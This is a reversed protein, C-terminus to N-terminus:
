SLVAWGVLFRTPSSYKTTNKSRTLELCHRSCVPICIRSRGECLGLLLLSSVILCSGIAVLFRPGYRDFLPGVQIGVFFVFFLYLSFIWGIQSSSYESLQHISFYSEFVASSNIVGFVSLMACFSGLVVLWAELGGEPFTLATVESSQRKLHQNAGDCFYPTDGTTVYENTDSDSFQDKHIAAQKELDTSSGNPTTSSPPTHAKPLRFHQYKLCTEAAYIHELTM